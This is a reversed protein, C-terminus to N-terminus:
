VTGSVNTWAPFYLVSSLNFICVICLSFVVWFFVVLVFSGQNLWEKCFEALFRPPSIRCCEQAWVPCNVLTQFVSPLLSAHLWYTVNDKISNWVPWSACTVHLMAVCQCVKPHYMLLPRYPLEAPLAADETQQQHRNPGILMVLAVTLQCLENVNFMVILFVCIVYYKSLRWKKNQGDVFNVANENWSRM